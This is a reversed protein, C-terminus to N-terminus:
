RIRSELWPRLIPLVNSPQMAQTHDLGDLLRVDWGVAELEAQREIIPAAIRVHADGWREGYVIEDASGAFCLRPCTVRPQAALDDFGRLAEYLTVFQRTQEESMTVEVNAWDFEDESQGQSPEAPKGAMEHTAMTVKLMEAYPGGLPPFGGMVLASLRDTRIALQLGSLALWSYGYYAFREVGAADAVALLDAAINAPTLTDPKPNALVHGEYDFAVVTFADKLGEILTRGLAPDMGWARMEEAKTGEAPEPNVPLLVAPGDGHVEFEIESGDHLRAM